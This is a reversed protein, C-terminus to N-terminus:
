IKIMSKIEDKGEEIEQVKRTEGKEIECLSAGYGENTVANIIKEDNLVKENYEVTMNNSLLNVNVKQIGELKKVAKEVHASCSSCTMGKIDFKEKKM